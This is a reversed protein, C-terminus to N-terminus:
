VACKFYDSVGIAEVFEVYNQKLSLDMGEMSM